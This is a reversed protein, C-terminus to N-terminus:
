SPPPNPSGTVKVNRRNGAKDVTYTVKVGNNISGTREVGTLRGKADYTYTITESPLAASIPALTAFSFLFYPAFRKM